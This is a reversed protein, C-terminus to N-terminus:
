RLVLGFRQGGFRAWALKLRIEPSDIGLELLDKVSQLLLQVTSREISALMMVPQNTQSRRAAASPDMSTLPKEALLRHFRRCHSIM